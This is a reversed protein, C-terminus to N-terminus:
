DGYGTMKELLFSATQQVSISHSDLLKVLSPIEAEHLEDEPMDAVYLQLKSASVTNLWRKLSFFPLRGSIRAEM